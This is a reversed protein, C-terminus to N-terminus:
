KKRHDTTKGEERIGQYFDLFLQNDGHSITISEPKRPTSSYPSSFRPYSTDIVAGNKRFEGQYKLHLEKGETHYTLEQNQYDTPNQQIRLMFDEFSADQENTSIEFIWYADKGPQILDFDSDERYSLDNNGIFSFFVNGKKGFAYRGKVLTTDMAAQPFHAHTFDVINGEMFGSENPIQYICLLVHEDQVAHPLRGNGVWYDPSGKSQNKAISPKGPHTTFISLEPAIVANWIHHQDGFMGPHYAQATALQYYPTRYTYTNARQITTGNTASNLSRSVFPLLGSKRLIGLNVLKFDHLFGNGLMNHENIYNLSNEIVQPHTFAEMAWQMMIQQDQMGYLGESRLEEVDLGNSAKVIVISTDLGIEKIVQPVEYNDVYMFNLDMGERPPYTYGWRGKGWIHAIVSRMSNGEGSFKGGRYMRGSSSIFTGRYSQTAVDHLLLDLIISAKQVIEEDEAFDILNSLPAIDEVYYVNSYWETFGYLWRQELWILIRKRAMEMHEKGTKGDNHFIEDEWRQGALYEATAFLLQHNESWFCMGDEGPQDMWYKFHIYTDKIEAQMIPDIRDWYKYVIRTLSQLRFDAVDYRNNVYELSSRLEQFDVPLDEELAKLIHNVRNRDKQAPVSAIKDIQNNQVIDWIIWGTLGFM